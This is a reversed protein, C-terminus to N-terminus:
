ARRGRAGQPVHLPKRRRSKKDYLIGMVYYARANSRSSSRRASWCTWRKM